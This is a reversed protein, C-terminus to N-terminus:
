LNGITYLHKFDNYGRDFIYHAGLEYPIKDMGQMDNFNVPTIHLFAPVQPEIDYLTHM